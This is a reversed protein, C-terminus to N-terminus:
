SVAAARTINVVVSLDSILPMTCINPAEKNRRLDRRLVSSFLAALLLADEVNALPAVLPLAICDSHLVGGGADRCAFRTEVFLVPYLASLLVLLYAHLRQQVDM